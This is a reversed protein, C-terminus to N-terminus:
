VCAGLEKLQRAVQPLDPRATTIFQEVMARMAAPGQHPYEVILVNAGLLRLGEDVAQGCTAVVARLSPCRNAYCAAQAASHVFLLGGAAAGDRVRRALERVVVDIQGPKNPQGIPRLASRLQGTLQEVAGCQGDIWWLWPANRAISAASASVSAAVSKTAGEREITIGHEKAYDAALPTLRAKATLAVAAGESGALQKATVMGELVRRSSASPASAGRQEPRLETFKSYDGTCVGAPPHIEARAAPAGDGVAGRSQLAAMVQQTITAILKSQEDM